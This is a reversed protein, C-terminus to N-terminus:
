GRIPVQGQFGGWGSVGGSIEELFKPAIEKPSSISSRGSTNSVASLLKTM